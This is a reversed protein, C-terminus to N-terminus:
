VFRYAVCTLRSRLDMAVRWARMRFGNVSGVECKDERLGVEGMICGFLQYVFVEDYSAIVLCFFRSIAQSLPIAVIERVASCVLGRSGTRELFAM